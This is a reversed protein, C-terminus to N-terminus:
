STLQPNPHILVSTWRAIEMVIEKYVAYSLTVIPINLISILAQIDGIISPSGKKDTFRSRNDKSHVVSKRLLRDAVILENFLSSINNMLLRPLSVPLAM